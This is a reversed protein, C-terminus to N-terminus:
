CSTEATRCSTANLIASLHAFVLDPEIEEMCESRKSGNCGDRECPRCEKRVSVAVAAPTWPRWKREDTPGFLATVPTGVAAAIHMPASDVGLFAAARRAIAGLEKLSTEGCLTVPRSKMLGLIARAREIERQDPGCTMVVPLGMEGRVRDLTEAMAEDKWCKFLWRSTPHVHLFPEGRGVGRDTLIREVKGDAEEPVAFELRTDTTDMGFRRVLDLDNEVV